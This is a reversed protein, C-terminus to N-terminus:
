GLDIGLLGPFLMDLTAISVGVLVCEMLLCALSVGVVRWNSRLLGGAENHEELADGQLRDALYWVALVNVVAVASAPVNEPLMVVFVFWVATVGAGIGLCIQRAREDGLERYNAAILWFGAFM